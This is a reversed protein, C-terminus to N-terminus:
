NVTGSENFQNFGGSCGPVSISSTTSYTASFAGGYPGTNKTLLFADGSTSTYGLSATGSVTKPPWTLPTVTASASFNATPTASSATLDMFVVSSVAGSPGGGTGPLHWADAMQHAVYGCFVNPPNNFAVISDPEVDPKSSALYEEIDSIQKRLFAAYELSAAGSRQADALKKQWLALEYRAGGDGVSDRYITGDYAIREYVGDAIQMWMGGDDHTAALAANTGVMGSLLVAIVVPNRKFM